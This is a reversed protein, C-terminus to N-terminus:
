VVTMEGKRGLIRVNVHKNLEREIQDKIDYAHSEVFRNGNLNITMEIDFPSKPELLGQGQSFHYKYQGNLFGVAIREAGMRLGMDEGSTTKASVNTKKVKIGIMIEEM